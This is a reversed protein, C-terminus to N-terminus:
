STLMVVDEQRILEISKLIVFCDILCDVLNDVLRIRNSTSLQCDIMLDTQRVSNRVIVFYNVFCDILSFTDLLRRRRRNIQCHRFRRKFFRISLSKM